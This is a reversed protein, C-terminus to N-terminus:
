FQVARRKRYPSNFEGCFSCYVVKESDHSPEDAATSDADGEDASSETEADLEDILGARSKRIARSVAIVADDQSAVTKHLSEELQLLRESEEKELRTLTNMLEDIKANAQKTNEQDRYSFYIQDGIAVALKEATEEDPKAEAEPDPDFVRVDWGMLLFRSAWGAGIVGSGLIAATMAM